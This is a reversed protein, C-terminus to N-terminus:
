QAPTLEDSSHFKTSQTNCLDLTIFVRNPYAHLHILFLLIHRELNVKLIVLKGNKFIFSHILRGIHKLEATQSSKMATKYIATQYHNLINIRRKSSSKEGENVHKILSHHDKEVTTNTNNNNNNTINVTNATTIRYHYNYHIMMMMEKRKPSPPM